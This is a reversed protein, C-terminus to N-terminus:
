LNLADNLEKLSPFIHNPTYPSNEIDQRRTEGSLVLVSTINANIALQIDTYLRDGVMAMDNHEVSFKESISDIIHSNPKGVILLRKGTSVRIMEIMAGTDPMVKNNALPCNIDPHTAIYPIGDRIYDCASWIKDYTITTDFGLVVFDPTDNKDKVLNFGHFM